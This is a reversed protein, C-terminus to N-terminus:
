QEAKWKMLAAGPDAVMSETQAISSKGDEIAEILETAELWEESGEDLDDPDPPMEARRQRLRELHEKAPEIFQDLTGMQNMFSEEDDIDNLYELELSLEDLVEETSVCHGAIDILWADTPTQHDGTWPGNREEYESLPQTSDWYWSLALWAAWLVPIILWGWGGVFYAVLLMPIFTLILLFGQGMANTHDWQDAAKKVRRQM